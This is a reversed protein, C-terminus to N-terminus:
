IINGHEGPFRKAIQDAVEKQLALIGEAFKDARGLGPEALYDRLLENLKKISLRPLGVAKAHLLAQKGQWEITVRKFPESVLFTMAQFRLSALDNGLWYLRKSLPEGEVPVTSEPGMVGGPFFFNQTLSQSLQLHLLLDRRLKEFEQKVSFGLLSVESFVPALLLVIWVLFATYRQTVSLNLITELPPRNLVILSFFVVLAGWWIRRFIVGFKM